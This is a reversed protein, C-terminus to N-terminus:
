HVRGLAEDIVNAMPPGHVEDYLEDLLDAILRTEANPSESLVKLTRDARLRILMRRIKQRDWATKREVEDTLRNIDLVAKFEM